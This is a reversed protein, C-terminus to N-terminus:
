KAEIAVVAQVALVVLNQAQQQPQEQVVVVAV